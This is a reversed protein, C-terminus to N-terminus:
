IMLIFIIFCRVCTNFLNPFVSKQRLDGSKYRMHVIPIIVCLNYVQAFFPILFIIRFPIANLFALLM